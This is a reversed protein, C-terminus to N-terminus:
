ENIVNELEKNKFMERRAKSIPKEPIQKELAEVALKVVQRAFNNNEEELKHGNRIIFEIAFKEPNKNVKIGGGIRIKNTINM